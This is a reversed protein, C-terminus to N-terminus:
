LLCPILAIQITNMSKILRIVSIKFVFSMLKSSIQGFIRVKSLWIHLRPRPPLAVQDWGPRSRFMSNKTILQFSAVHYSLIFTM